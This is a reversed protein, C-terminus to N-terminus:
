GTIPGYRNLSHDSRRPVNEMNFMEDRDITYKFTENNFSIPKNEFYERIPVFIRLIHLKM